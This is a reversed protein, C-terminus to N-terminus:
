SFAWFKSMLFVGAPVATVILIIAYWYSMFLINVVLYVALSNLGLGVLSVVIFKLLAARWGGSEDVYHERFTWFFHGIFGVTVAVCFAAANAWLPAMGYLEIWVIFAVVHTITAAIGVVGFKLGQRAVQLLM